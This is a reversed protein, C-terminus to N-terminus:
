VLQYSNARCMTTSACDQPRSELMGRSLGMWYLIDAPQAVGACRWEPYGYSGAARCRGAPSARCSACGQASRPLSGRVKTSSTISSQPLSACGIFENLPGSVVEHEVFGRECGVIDEGEVLGVDPVGIRGEGILGRYVRDAVCLPDVQMEGISARQDVARGGPPAYQMAVVMGFQVLSHFILQALHGVDHEATQRVFGDRPQGFLQDIDGGGAQVFHKEGVGARDGHLNRELHGQLVPNGLP